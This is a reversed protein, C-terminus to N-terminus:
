LVEPRRHPCMVLIGVLLMPLTAPEPIPTSRVYTFSGGRTAGWQSFQLNLYIDDAILHVVSPFSTINSLLFGQDGYAVEWDVFTLAAWNMADISAGPNQLETAWETGRPSNDSYTCGFADCDLAANLLGKTNNRTLQVDDTLRDQNAPLLPDAGSAKSFTFAPGTWVVPAASTQEVVVCISVLCLGRVVWVCPVFSM